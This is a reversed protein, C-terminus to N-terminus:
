EKLGKYLLMIRNGKRRKQLSEWKLNKPNDTMSCKEFTYNRTVFRAARKQVEGLEDILGKYYPDSVSRGYELIPRLSKYTSKRM